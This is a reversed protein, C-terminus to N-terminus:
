VIELAALMSPFGCICGNFAVEVDRDVYSYLAMRNLFWMAAKAKESAFGVLIHKGKAHAYGLEALTGYCDGREIWAFILDTRNIAGLCRRVVEHEVCDESIRAVMVDHHSPFQEGFKNYLVGRCDESNAIGHTGSGHYCGHDCSMFFPGIYDFYEGSSEFRIPLDWWENKVLANGDDGNNRHPWTAIGPVISSRWGNKSVKGALYLKWPKIAPNVDTKGSLFRHCPGCVHLLDTLLERFMREYTMHHTETGYAQHCHECTGGSRQQVATKLIAWERSALYAMYKPKGPSMSKWDIM